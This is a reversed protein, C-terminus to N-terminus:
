KKIRVMWLNKRKELVLFQWNRRRCVSPISRFASEDSDTLIEICEEKKENNLEAMAKVSEFSPYPCAMGRTDISRLIECSLLSPTSNSGDLVIKLKSKMDERLNSLLPFWDYSCFWVEKRQLLFLLM